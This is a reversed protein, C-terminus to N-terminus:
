AVAADQDPAFWVDFSHQTDLYERVASIKGDRFSILFHYEQRYARGNTLDGSSRVEAAVRDGEGIMDVVSMQLGDKLREQMRGFLRSIRPKTYLGAGPMRGEKGPIWWSADETMLAVAGDIDGRSFRAFFQGAVEKNDQISM